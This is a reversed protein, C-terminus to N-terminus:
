LNLGQCIWNFSRLLHKSFGKLASAWCNEVQMSPSCITQLHAAHIKPRGGLLSQPGLGTGLLDPNCTLSAAMGFLCTSHRTITPHCFLLHFSPVDLESVKYSQGTYSLLLRLLQKQVKNSICKPPIYLSAPNYWSPQM